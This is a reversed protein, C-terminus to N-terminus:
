WSSNNSNCNWPCCNHQCLPTLQQQQPGPPECKQGKGALQSCPSSCSVAQATSCRSSSFSISSTQIPRCASCPQWNPQHLEGLLDAFLQMVAKRLLRVNEAVPAWVSVGSQERLLCRLRRGPMVCIASKSQLDVSVGALHRVACHLTETCGQWIDM